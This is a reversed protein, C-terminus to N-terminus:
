GESWDSRGGLARLAPQPIIPFRFRPSLAYAQGLPSLQNPYTVVLRGGLLLSRRLLSLVPIEGPDHQGDADLTIVAAVEAELARRLGARLAGGKVQNPTQRYVRAGAAEALAVTEDDSGDDVVMVPLHRRAEM